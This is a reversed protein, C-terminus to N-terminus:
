VQIATHEVGWGWGTSLATDYHKNCDDENTNSRSCPEGLLHEM